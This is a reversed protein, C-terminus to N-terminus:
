RTSLEIAYNRGPAPYGAVPAYQADGFNRLRFTLIAHKQLRVRLYADLTTYADYVNPSPGFTLDGDSGVIQARVGYALAGAGFPHTLGLTAQVNPERPLRAGTASDLAEYLNTLSFDAVLGHFPPTAATAVLGAVTARQANQPVFNDDLVIFNTGDRQFWGLSIGGAAKPFALTV